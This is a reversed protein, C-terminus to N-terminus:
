VHASEIAHAAHEFATLAHQVEDASVTLPPMCRVVRASAAGMLILSAETLCHQAFAQRREATDFEIGLLLGSGRIDTVFGHEAAVARVGSFLQDARERVNLLFAPETIIAITELAAACGIPNGGYTGGHSGRTWTSMIQTSSGVASMPFGSAIGKGLILIDPRVGYGDVAFMEGTRGFGTQVEDALLLIGHQDCIRRIGRVFEPDAPLYGAEGQVLELVMAATDSPATLTELLQTLGALAATTDARRASFPAVHVGPPLPSYGTRLSAASTSMAMTLHTRGHFGGAFVIVNPRHTAHKALKVAAEVAESGSNTVFFQEIGAPTIERLTDCLPELLDHRYVNVQAHIFREAQRQIAAVVRPHCHGTSTVAIGSSFDLYRRGDATTVWSGSGSVVRLDTVAFWVDALSGPM